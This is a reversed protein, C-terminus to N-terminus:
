RLEDDSEYESDIDSNSSSSQKHESDEEHESDINNDSSLEKKENFNTDHDEDPLNNNAFMSAELQIYLKDIAITADDRHLRTFAEVNAEDVLIM